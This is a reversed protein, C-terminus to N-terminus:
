YDLPILSLLHAQLPQNPYQMMTTFSSTLSRTNLFDYHLVYSTIIHGHPSPNTRIRPYRSNLRWHADKVQYFHATLYQTFFCFVSCLLWGITSRYRPLLLLPYSMDHRNFLLMKSPFHHFSPLQLLVSHFQM